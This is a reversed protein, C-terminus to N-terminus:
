DKKILINALEKIGNINTQIDPVFDTKPTFSDQKQRQTLERPIQKKKIEGGEYLDDYVKNLFKLEDFTQNKDISTKREDEIIEELLRRAKEKRLSQPGSIISYYPGAEVGVIRHKKATIKKDRDSSFTKVLSGVQSVDAGVSLALEQLQTVDQIQNNVIKQELNFIDVINAGKNKFFTNIQNPKIYPEDFTNKLNQIQESIRDQESVNGEAKTFQIALNSFQASLKINDEKRTLERANNVNTLNSLYTNVLEVREKDNLQLYLQSYGPGLNGTTLNTVTEAFNQNNKSNVFNLISRVKAKRVIADAQKIAEDFTEPNFTIVQNKLSNFEKEMLTSFFSEVEGKDNVSTIFKQPDDLDSLLLNIKAEFHDIARSANIKDLTKQREIENSLATKYMTNGLTAISARFQLAVNADMKGVATYADTLSNAKVLVQQSTIKGSNLDPLMALMEKEAEYEFRASLENARIKNLIKGRITLPSGKLDSVDGTRAAELQELTIPNEAAYKMARDQAIDTTIPDLMKALKAQVTGQTESYEAMQQIGVRKVQSMSTIGGGSVSPSALSFNQKPLKPLQAM